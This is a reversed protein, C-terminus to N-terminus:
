FVLSSINTMTKGDMQDHLKISKYYLNQKKTKKTLDQAVVTIAYGNPFKLSM